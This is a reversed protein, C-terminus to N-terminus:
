SRHNATTAPDSFYNRARVMAEENVRFMMLLGSLLIAGCVLYSLAGYGVHAVLLGGAAAGAAAGGWNSSSIVGSLTGRATGGTQAILILLVTTVPVSLLMFLGAVLVTPWTSWSWLFLTLGPVTAILLMAAIVRLRTRLRAIRGGLLPAATAGIAVVAVPLAVELTNLGFTVILYAPFFTIIVGWTVRSLINTTAMYWTVPFTAVKLLRTALKLTTRQSRNYPVMLYLILAAIFLALGLILFPVRWGAADGVVAALPVGLVSSLGPQMTLLSICVPKRADPFTDGVLSICTPPVMGGGMGILMCSAVATGLGPALGIGLSGLALLCVGLVLVPKRGYADSFPGALLATVAWTAAATTVLQGVVPVSTGLAVSM